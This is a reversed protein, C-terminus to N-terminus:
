SDNEEILVVFFQFYVESGPGSSIPFTSTAHLESRNMNIANILYNTLRENKNSKIFLRHKKKIKLLLLVSYYPNSVKKM